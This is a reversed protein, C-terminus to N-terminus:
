KIPVERSLPIVIEFPAAFDSEAPDSQLQKVLQADELEVSEPQKTKENIKVGTFKLHQPNERLKKILDYVLNSGKPNDEGGRWFGKLRIANARAMPEPEGPKLPIPKNKADVKQEVKINEMGSVGYGLTFFEGKVTSKSKKNEETSGLPNYNYVPDFDTIWVSTSAFGSQIEQILEPWFTRDSEASTYQTALAVLQDQEKLQASIPNSISELQDKQATM